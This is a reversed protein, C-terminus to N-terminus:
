VHPREPSCSAFSQTQKSFVLKRPCLWSAIQDPSLRSMAPVTGHFQRSELISTPLLTSTVNHQRSIAYPGAKRKPRFGRKLRALAFRPRTDCKGSLAALVPVAFLSFTVASSIPNGPLGFFPLRRRDARLDDENSTPTLEGFVLPKGPQIRVGTFHLRAQLRNLASEVLDFKGASVGGSVLLLAGGRSGPSARCGSIPRHRPRNPPDM